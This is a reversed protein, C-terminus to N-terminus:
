VEEVLTPPVPAFRAWFRDADGAPPLSVDQPTTDFSGPLAPPMIHRPHNQDAHDGAAVPSRGRHAPYQSDRFSDNRGERGSFARSMHGVAGWRRSGPPAAWTIGPGDALMKTSMGLQLEQVQMERAAASCPDLQPQNPFLQLVPMRFYRDFIEEADEETMGPGHRGLMVIERFTERDMRVVLEQQEAFVDPYENRLAVLLDIKTPWSRHSLWTVVDVPVQM